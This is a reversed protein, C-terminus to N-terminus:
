CIMKKLECAFCRYKNLGDFETIDSYRREIEEYKEKTIQGSLEPIKKGYIDRVILNGYYSCFVYKIPPKIEM